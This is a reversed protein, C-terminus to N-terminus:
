LSVCDTCARDHLIHLQLFPITTLKQQFM